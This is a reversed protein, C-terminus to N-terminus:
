SSATSASATTASASAAAPAISLVVTAKNVYTAQDSTSPSLIEHVFQGTHITGGSALTKSGRLTLLLSTTGDENDQLARSAITWTTPTTTTTM